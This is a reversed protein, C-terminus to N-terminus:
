EDRREWNLLAWSQLDSKAGLVNKLQLIGLYYWEYLKTRKESVLHVICELTYTTNM